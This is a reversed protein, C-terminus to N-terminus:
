CPPYVPQWGNDTLQYTFLSHLQWRAGKKIATKGGREWFYAVEGATLPRGHPIRHEDRIACYTGDWLRSSPGSWYADDLFVVSVKYEIQYERVPATSEIGNVKEYSLVQILGGSQTQIMREVDVRGDPKADSPSCSVLTLAIWAAVARQM